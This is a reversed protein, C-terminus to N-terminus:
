SLDQAQCFGIFRDLAPSKHKDKHVVLHIRRCGNLGKVDLVCLKGEELEKKIVLTSLLAIGQGAMVAQKITPVNTCEWKIHVDIGKEQLMNMLVNRVQSGQERTIIDYEALEEPTIEGKGALPSDPAAVVKMCDSCFPLLCVEDSIIQGEVIGLDLQGRLIHDEIYETNNVTVEAVVKMCDSCFPLLCVEDSIIQGEVIGLDLQGRLIHDEIYETNNVTVEIRVDPNEKEFQSIMGVLLESGVSVTAGIRLVSNSGIHLMERNLEEYRALLARCHGLLVEGERTLILKKRYREFLTVQYYNELEKIAQSVGPQSIYLAEAAQHMTKYDVVATFIQFHRITM